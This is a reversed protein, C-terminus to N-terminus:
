CLDTSVERRLAEPVPTFKTTKLGHKQKTGIVRFLGRQTRVSETKLSSGTM